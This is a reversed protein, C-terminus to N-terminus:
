SRVECQQCMGGSNAMQAPCGAAFSGQAGNQAIVVPKTYSM